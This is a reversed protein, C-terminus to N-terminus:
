TLGTTASTTWAWVGWYTGQAYADSYNNIWANYKAIDIDAYKTIFVLGISGSSMAPNIGVTNQSGAVVYQNTGASHSVATADTVPAATSRIVSRAGAASFSGALIQWSGASINAVSDARGATTGNFSQASVKSPSAAQLLNHFITGHRISAYYMGTTINAPKVFMAIQEPVDTEVSVTTAAYNSAATTPSWGLGSVPLAATTLVGNVTLTNVLGTRDTGQGAPWWGKLLTNNYTAYQGFTAGVAPLTALSAGAFVRLAPPSTSNQFRAYVMGKHNTYDFTSADLDCPIQTQTVGDWTCVRIDRGDPAVNSWFTAGANQLDIPAVFDAVTVTTAKPTAQIYGAWQVAAATLVMWSGVGQLSTDDTITITLTDSGVATKKYKVTASLSGALVQNIQTITGTLLCNTSGNGSTITIGTSGAVVTITAGAGCQLRCTQTAGSADSDAYSFGAGHVFFDTNATAAMFGAPSTVIPRVLSTTTKNNTGSQGQSDVVTVTVTKGSGASAPTWLITGTSGGSAVLLKNLSTITGRITISASGNGGTVTCGSNGASISVTGTSVAFTMTAYGGNDDSDSVTFGDGEVHNVEGNVATYTGGPVGVTPPVYNAATFNINGVTQLGDQDTVTITVTGTGPTGDTFIVTASHEGRFLSDLADITGTLLVNNTGNGSTITVSTSGAAVTVTGASPQIRATCTSGGRDDPDFITVGRNELHVSM